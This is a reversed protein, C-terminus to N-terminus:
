LLVNWSLIEIKVSMESKRGPVPVVAVKHSESRSDFIHSTVM